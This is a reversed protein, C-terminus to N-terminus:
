RLFEVLLEFAVDGEVILLEEGCHEVVVRLIVGEVQRVSIDAETHEGCTRVEFAIVASSVVQEKCGKGVLSELQEVVGADGVAGRLRDEAVYPESAFLEWLCFDM